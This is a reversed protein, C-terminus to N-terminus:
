FPGKINVTDCLILSVTVASHKGSSLPTASCLQRRCHGVGWVPTTHLIISSYSTRANWLLSVLKGEIKSPLLIVPYYVKVHHYCVLCISLWNLAASPSASNMRIKSLKEEERRFFFTDLKGMYFSISRHNIILM